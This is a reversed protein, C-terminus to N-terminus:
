CPSGCNWLFVNPQDLRCVPVLAQLVICFFLQLYLFRLRSSEISRLNDKNALQAYLMATFHEGSKFGKSWKESKHKKVAKEFDSRPILQLIQSFITNNFSMGFDKAKQITDYSYLLLSKPKKIGM